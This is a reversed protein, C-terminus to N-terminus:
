ERLKLGRHIGHTICLTMCVPSKDDIEKGYEEYGGIYMVTETDEFNNGKYLTRMEPAPSSCM